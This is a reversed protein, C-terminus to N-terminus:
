VERANMVFIEKNGDRDSVFAIETAAVGRLGVYSEVIDDAIRRALRGPNSAAPQSYRRSLRVRCGTPDWVRYSVEFQTEGFQLTGDLLADAGIQSWDVCTPDQGAASTVSGLFAEESIPEFLGSYELAASLNERFANVRSPRPGATTAHAFRQVAIRYSKEEGPNIVVPVRATQALADAALLAVVFALWLSGVRARRAHM